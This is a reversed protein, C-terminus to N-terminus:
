KTMSAYLKPALAALEHDPYLATMRHRRRYASLGAHLCFIPRFIGGYLEANSLISKQIGANHALRFFRGSFYDNIERLSFLGRRYSLYIGEFYSIYDLLREVEEAKLGSVWDDAQGNQIQIAVDGYSNLDRNISILLSVKSSNSAQRLQFWVVAVGISSVLLAAADM